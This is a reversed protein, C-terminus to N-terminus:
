NVHACFNKVQTGDGGSWIELGGFIISLYMSSTVGYNNRVSDQIFKNLDFTLSDIPNTSVYSICVASTSSAPDIWVDWSGNVGDVSHGAYNAVKSYGSSQGGRPQRQSPKYLWVMLYAGKLGPNDQAAPLPSSTETLWVDYTANFNSKDKSSANTSFTTPVTTLSSVQKPLNSGVSTHGYYSGIFISPFGAPRGEAAGVDTKTGDKVTFSLGDYDVVQGTYKFWWNPFVFYSKGGDDVTIETAAKSDSGVISGTKTVKDTCDTRPTSVGGTASSGGATTAGGNSRSGGANTGGAATSAGGTHSGGTSRSGGATATAGGTHTQVVTGTTGGTTLM